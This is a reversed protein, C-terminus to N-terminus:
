LSGGRGIVEQNNTNGECTRLMRLNVEKRAELRSIWTKELHLVTGPAGKEKRHFAPILEIRLRRQKKPRRISPKNALPDKRRGRVRGM